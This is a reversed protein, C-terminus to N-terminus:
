NDLAEKMAALYLRVKDKTADNVKSYLDISGRYQDEADDLSIKQENLHNLFLIINALAPMEADIKSQKLYDSLNKYIQTVFQLKDMQSM